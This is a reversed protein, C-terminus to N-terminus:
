YIIYNVIFTCVICDHKSYINPGHVLINNNKIHKNYVLINPGYVLFKNSRDNKRDLKTFCLAICCIICLGLM